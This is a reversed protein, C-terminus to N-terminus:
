LLHKIGAHNNKSGGMSCPCEYSFSSHCAVYPFGLRAATPSWQIIFSTVHLVCDPKAQPSWTYLCVLDKDGVLSTLPSLHSLSASIPSIGQGCHWTALSPRPLSWTWAAKGRFWSPLWWECPQELGWRWQDTEAPSPWVGQHGPPPGGVQSSSRGHDGGNGCTEFRYYGEAEWTFQPSRSELMCCMYCEASRLCLSSMWFRTILPTLHVAFPLKLSCLTEQKGPFSALGMRQELSAGHKVKPFAFVVASVFLVRPLVSATLGFDWNVDAWHLLPTQQGQISEHVWVCDVYLHTIVYTQTSFSASSYM